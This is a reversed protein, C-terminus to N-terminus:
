KSGGLVCWPSHMGQESPRLKDHGCTCLSYPKTVEENNYVRSILELETAMFYLDYPEADLQVSVVLQDFANLHPEAKVTGLQDKYTSHIGIIKVRDGITFKM